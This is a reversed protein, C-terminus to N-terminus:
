RQFTHMKTPQRTVIARHYFYHKRIRLVPLLLVGAFNVWNQMTVKVAVESEPSQYLLLSIIPDPGLM